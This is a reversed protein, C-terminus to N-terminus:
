RPIIEHLVEDQLSFMKDEDEKNMHDYGLLHLLGHTFLFCFEREFSHGYDDAQKQIADVNIFIDGIEVEDEMSIDLVEGELSAFSIVDTERDIQRYDRNMEHIRVSDVLIVSFVYSSNVDLLEKVRNLIKNFLSVQEKKLNFAIENVINYNM